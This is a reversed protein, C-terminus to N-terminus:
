KTAEVHEGDGSGKWWRWIARCYVYTEMTGFIGLLVMLFIKMNKSLGLSDLNLAPLEPASEVPEKQAAVKSQFRPPSAPQKNLLVNQTSFTQRSLIPPAFQTGRQTLLLGNRRFLARTYLQLPRSALSM